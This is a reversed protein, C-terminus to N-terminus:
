SSRSCTSTASSRGLLRLLAAVGAAQRRPGHALLASNVVGNRGLLPIWSIMRIVNSTWFPITTLLFLAMQWTLDRVYFALFYAVAFGLDLHHGLRDPLVQAHQSLDGLHHSDTFVDVYNQLSFAPILIDYSEYDFFSVAVVLLM